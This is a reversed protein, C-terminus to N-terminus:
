PELGKPKQWGAVWPRKGRVHANSKVTLAGDKLYIAQAGGRWAERRDIIKAKCADGIKKAVPYFAIVLDARACDTRIGVPDLSFAFVQEALTAVCGDDDCPLIARMSVSQESVGSVERWVGASFRDKRPDFIALQEETQKSTWTKHFRIAANDGDAAIFILPIPTLNSLAFGIFIVLFGFWRWPAWLLLLLLGGLVITILSLNSWQGVGLIAGQWSSVTTASALVLEVGKASIQWFIHDFGIPLTLLGAIIFPMIVFAMIPTAVLNAALSYVAAQHFHYLAFPATATAAITDTAAVGLVYRRMIDVITNQKYVSYKSSFWEYAAILATAAAFSMQFGPHLVAEPTLVLIITAAIAINRLSLARRDVIIAVFIVATMIFARRASWGSGSLLLYVFCSILAGIAAWKKIPFYLALQPSLALLARLSFFILGAVLGMHLGSIALLHALGSHRLAEESQSNIAGRKGTVLAAVVAGGQGPASTLIHQALNTRVREIAINFESYHREILGKPKRPADNSSREALVKPTSVSFGVAGIRKFYLYRAFDFAHPAAPEPPPSLGARLTIRDGPQLDLDDGRWTVRVREPTEDAALRDISIEKLTLRNRNSNQEILVLQGTVARISLERKLIPADVRDTRLDALVIGSSFLALCLCLALLQSKNRLLLALAWFGAALVQILLSEPEFRLSFYTAAGGGIAVPIWLFLRESDTRWWERLLLQMRGRISRFSWHFREHEPDVLIPVPSFSRRFGNLRSKFDLKRDQDM